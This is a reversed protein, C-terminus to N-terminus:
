AEEEADIIKETDECETKILIDEEDKISRTLLVGGLLAGGIMVGYILVKKLLVKGVIKM